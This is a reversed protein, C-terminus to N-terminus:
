TLCAEPQGLVLEGLPETVVAAGTRELDRTQDMIAGFEGRKKSAQSRGLLILWGSVRIMILYLLRFSM